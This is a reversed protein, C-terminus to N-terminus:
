LYITIGNEGSPIAGNPERGNLAGHMLPAWYSRFWQHLIIKSFDQDGMVSWARDNPVCKKTRFTLPDTLFVLRM